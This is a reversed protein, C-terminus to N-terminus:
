PRFPLESAVRHLYRRGNHGHQEGGMGCVELMQGSRAVGLSGLSEIGHELSNAPRVEAIGQGRELGQGGLSGVELPHMRGHYRSRM